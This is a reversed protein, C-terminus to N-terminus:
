KERMAPISLGVKPASTSKKFQEWAPWQCAASVQAAALMLVSLVVSRVANMM